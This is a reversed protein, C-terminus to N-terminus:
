KGIPCPKPDLQTNKLVKFKIMQGLSFFYRTPGEKQDM